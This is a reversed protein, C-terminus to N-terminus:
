GAITIFLNGPASDQIAAIKQGSTFQFYEPVNAPLFTGTGDAVATPNAAFAVHCDQTAVLRVVTATLAGSQTSTTFAVKSSTGLAICPLAGKLISSLSVRQAISGDGSDDGTLYQGGTTHLNKQAM